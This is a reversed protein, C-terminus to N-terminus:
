DLGLARVNTYTSEEELPKAGRREAKSSKKSTFVPTSYVLSDEVTQQNEQEGSAITQLDVSAKCCDCAKNQLKKVSHLLFVVVLLSVALAASLVSIVTTNLAEDNKESDTDECTAVACNYSADDSSRINKFFSVVCKKASHGDLKEDCEVFTNGDSCTFSLHLRHSQAGFCCILNGETENNTSSPFTLNGPNIPEPSTVATVYPDLAEVRLDVGDLFMFDHQLTKLCIYVAHDSLEAKSIHLNFKGPEKSTQIRDDNIGYGSSKQIVRPFAGSVLRIWFLSGVGERACPLNVDNGVRVTEVRLDDTSGPYVSWTQRLISLFTSNRYGEYVYERGGSVILLLLFLLQM